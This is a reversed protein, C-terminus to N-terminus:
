RANFPIQIAILIDNNESKLHIQGDLLELRNHIDPPIVLKQQPKEINFNIGISSASRTLRFNIAVEPNSAVAADTLLQVIRFIHMSEDVTYCSNIDTMLEVRLQHNVCADMVMSEISQSLGMLDMQYPRLRHLIARIQAIIDAIHDITRGIADRGTQASLQKLRWAKNKILILQQGINDHLEMAVRKKEQEQRQLLERLFKKKEAISKVQIQEKEQQYFNLRSALAFSLILSELLTGWHMSTRTFTNDPLMDLDKLNYVANGLMLSGFGLLYYRAPRYGNRLCSIGAGFWYIFFPYMLYQILIFAYAGKWFIDTLIIICSLLTMFGGTKYFFPSNKKTQLFSNTFFISLISALGIIIGASNLWSLSTLIDPLFGNYFFVNFGWFFIYFLYYIYSRERTLIYVFLNYLAFAMLMGFTIGNLMDTLYSQEFARQLTVIELPLRLINNSTARIYYEATSDLPLQLPILLDNVRIQEKTRPNSADTLFLEVLRSGEKRYLRVSQLVPPCEIQLNWGSHHSHNVVQMKIWVAATSVGLSLVPLAAPKFGAHKLVEEPLMHQGTDVLYLPYNITYGSENDQLEIPRIDMAVAHLVFLFSVCISLIWQKM